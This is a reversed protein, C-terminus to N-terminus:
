VVIGAANRIHRREPLTQHVKAPHLSSVDLDLKTPRATIDLASLHECPFQDAQLRIHQKRSRRRRRSRKLALATHDWDYEHVNGLWDLGAEHLREPSRASVDGAKGAVIPPLHSCSSFSASGRITRTAMM